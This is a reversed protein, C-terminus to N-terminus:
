PRSMRSQVASRFDDADFQWEGNLAFSAAVECARQAPREGAILWANTEARTCWAKLASFRILWVLARNADDLFRECVLGIAPEAHLDLGRTFEPVTLAVVDGPRAPFPTRTM